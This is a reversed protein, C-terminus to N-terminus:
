PITEQAAAHMNRWASPQQSSPGFARFHEDSVAKFLCPFLPFSYWPCSEQPWHSFFTDVSGNYKHALCTERVLLGVRTWYVLAFTAFLLANRPMPIRLPALVVLFFASSRPFSTSKKPASSRPQRGRSEDTCSPPCKDQLDPKSGISCHYSPHNGTAM